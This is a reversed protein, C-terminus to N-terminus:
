RDLLLLKQVRADGSAELRAFYVGPTLERGAADRGNWEVQHPGAAETADALKVVLRGAADYVGLRVPTAGALAYAFTTTPGFPNPMAPYFRLAAAPASAASAVSTATTLPVQDATFNLYFWWGRTLGDPGYDRDDRRACCGAGGALVSALPQGGILPIDAPIIITDAAAESLFGMMLGSALGTAPDGVYRAGVQGAELFVTLGNADFPVTVPATSFCPASPTTISPSYGGTTGPRPALCTGSFGNTYTGRGIPNAADMQCSTGALPATCLGTHLVLEGGPTSQQLPDFIILANLDLYGDGDSDTTIADNLSQNFSPVGPATDTVDLCLFTVRAWIHPDRLYLQSLRYCTPEAGAAPATLLVALLAFIFRTM